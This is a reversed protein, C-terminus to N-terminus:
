YKEDGLFTLIPLIIQEQWNLQLSQALHTSVSQIQEEYESLVDSKYGSGQGWRDIVQQWFENDEYDQPAFVRDSLLKEIEAGLVIALGEYNGNIQSRLRQMLPHLRSDDVIASEVWDIATLIEQKYISTRDRVLKESLYKGNFYIDIDRLEYKGYRNNTARLVM